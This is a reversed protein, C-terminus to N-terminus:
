KNGISRTPVRSQEQTMAMTVGYVKVMAEGGDNWMQNRLQGRREVHARSALWGM